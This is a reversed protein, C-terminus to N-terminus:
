WSEQLGIRRLASAKGVTVAKKKNVSHLVPQGHAGGAPGWLLRVIGLPYAWHGSSVEGTEGFQGRRDQPCAKEIRDEAEGGVGIRRARGVACGIKGERGGGAGAAGLRHDATRRPQQTPLKCPLFVIFLTCNVSHCRAYLRKSQPSSTHDPPPSTSLM